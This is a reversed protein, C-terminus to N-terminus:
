IDRCDIGGTIEGFKGALTAIESYRPLPIFFRYNFILLYLHNGVIEIVQQSYIPQLNLWPGASVGSHEVVSQAEGAQALGHM